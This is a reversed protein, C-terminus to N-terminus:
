SVMPLVRYIKMGPGIVDGLSGCSLKLSSIVKGHMPKVTSSRNFMDPGKSKSM